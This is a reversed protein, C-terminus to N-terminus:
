YTFSTISWFTGNYIMTISGWNTDIIATNELTQYDVGSIQKGNGYITINNIDADGQGDIVTIEQGTFPIDPLYIEENNYSMLINSRTTATYSLDNVNVVNKASQTQSIDKIRVLIEGVNNDSVNVIGVEVTYNPYEPKINTFKGWDTPSVYLMDGVTFGSTNINNIIGKSIVFGEANNPIDEATIGGIERVIDTDLQNARALRITPRGNISSNVYVISGIPIISGSDNLVKILFEQGIQQVVNPTHQISITSYYNNWYIDRIDHTTHTSGTSLRLESVGLIANLNLRTINGSEVNGYYFTVGSNYGSYPEYLNLSSNYSLIDNNLNVIGTGGSSNVVLTDGSLLSVSTSGSGIISRLNVIGTTTIGSYVGVGNGVNQVSQIITDSGGLKIWSNSNTYNTADKLFYLGNKTPDADKAVSVFAGDYLWVLGDADEWTLPDTLDTYYDVLQGANLPAKMLVEYNAAYIFTGRNRSM